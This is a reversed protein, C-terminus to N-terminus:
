RPEDDPKAKRGKWWKAALAAVGVGGLLFVKAFKVLFVGILAFLGLKKAAVGAVLAALGYEAVKDTSSNFDAYRKGEDFELAALMKKAMPKEADVTRLGTVLNLSVYGQRGLAYTNYNVGEESDAPAGKTRTSMSWVLRRSSADYAPKEIWGIVEMEPIGRKTREEHVAETGDKLNKLLEDANWERADDDKIYGAPDFRAVIFWDGDTGEGPFIMGLLNTSTRNGMATLIRAAPTSPVFVFGAPLKLNAQDILKIEAPGKQALPRAAELASKLETEAPSKDQAFASAACFCAAAVLVRGIRRLSAFGFMIRSTM